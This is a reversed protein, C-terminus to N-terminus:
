ARERLAKLVKEATVPLEKFRVGTAHAIANVVATAVDNLASEGIGKAGFPGTSERSPALFVEVKEPVEMATLLKYNLFDTNTTNGSDDFSVNEMLAFGIGQALGGHLQGEVGMPSIPQGVDAGCIARVVRVQGTETNVEVEIFKVTFHPAFGSAAYSSKGVITGWNNIRASAAVQAISVSKSPAGKVFVRRDKLELDEPSAELIKGAWDLLSKKADEAALKVAGGGVYIGRSAHTVADYPANDTDADSVIVDDVGVGLTEAAIQALATLEGQGADALATVLSVTSDDNVKIFAGGTDAIGSPEFGSCSSAHWGRAMGIGRRIKGARKVGDRGAWGIIEAGKRLLYEVECSEIYHKVRPGQALVLDGKRRYNKLRLDIPDVGLEEAVQDMASEIAFNAQPNGFGRFACPPPTNTYVGRGEYSFHPSRYMSYTWGTTASVVWAGLVDYGGIDYTVDYKQSVLTGDRKFGMKVKLIAPYRRASTFVEARSLQLKVPLRTKLALLACMPEDFRTHIYSGFAGGIFIRNARVKSFPLGLLNCITYRLGHISQNTSWVSLRGDAEPRCVVVTRELPVQQPSSTRYEGEFIYESDRFGKEVDGEVHTTVTAINNRPEIRRGGMVYYDHVRPAGSKLAEGVEFVAPLEEYEVDIMELAKQCTEIDNAAVVAIRDGVYRATEELIHKDRIANAPDGLDDLGYPEQPVDKFTLVSKVGQLKQAKSTDIRKVRAHAYPSRLIKAYLMNPFFIDSTYRLTGTAKGVAEIKPVDKGVVSLGKEM